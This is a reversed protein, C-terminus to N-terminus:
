VGYQQASQPMRRMMEQMMIRRMMQPDVAPNQGQMQQGQMQRPQALQGIPQRPQPANQAQVQQLIQSLAMAKTPDMPPAAAGPGQQMKQMMEQQLMRPDAMLPSGPIQPTPNTPGPTPYPPQGGMRRQQPLMFDRLNKAM